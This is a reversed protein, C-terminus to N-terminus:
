VELQHSCGYFLIFGAISIRTETDGAFDSDSFAVMSWGPKQEDKKPELKLSLRKTDMVYTLVRLLEKHAAASTGDLAKSLERVANAIDPRAHKM